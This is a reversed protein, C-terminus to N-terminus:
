LVAQGMAEWTERDIRQGSQGEMWVLQENASTAIRILDRNTVPGKIRFCNTSGRPHSHTSPERCVRFRKGGMLAKNTLGVSLQRPGDEYDIRQAEWITPFVTSWGYFDLTTQLGVLSVWVGRRVRRIALKGYQDPRYPM